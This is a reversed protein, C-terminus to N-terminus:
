AHHFHNTSVYSSPLTKVRAGSSPFGVVLRKIIQPSPTFYQLNCMWTHQTDRIVQMNGHKSSLTRASYPHCSHAQAEFFCRTSTPRYRQSPKCAGTVDHYRLERVLSAECRHLYGLYVGTPPLLRDHGPHKVKTFTVPRTGAYNAETSIAPPAFNSSHLSSLVCAPTAGDKQM